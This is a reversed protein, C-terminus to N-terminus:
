PSFESSSWVRGTSMRVWRTTPLSPVSANTAEATIRVTGSSRCAIVPRSTNSSRLPALPNAARGPTWRAPWWRVAPRADSRTAWDSGAHSSIRRRIVTSRCAARSTSYWASEAAATVSSDAGGGGTSRDIGTAPGASSVASGRARARSQCVRLPRYAVTASARGDPVVASSSSM